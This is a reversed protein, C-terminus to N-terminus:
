RAMPRPRPAHKSGPGQAADGESATTDTSALTAQWIAAPAPGVPAFVATLAAVLVPEVASAQLSTVTAAPVGPISGLSLAVATTITAAVKRARRTAKRVARSRRRHPELHFLM